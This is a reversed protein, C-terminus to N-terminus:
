EFLRYILNRLKPSNAAQHLMRIDDRGYSNGYQHMQQYHKLNDQFYSAFGQYARASFDQFTEQSRENGFQDHHGKMFKRKKFTLHGHHIISVYDCVGISWNNEQCVDHCVLEQGWGYILKEDFQGISEILKRHFLPAQNDIWRVLRIGKTGWNMMQRWPNAKGAMCPTVIALNNQFLANRLVEVFNEGNLEIDNNLFLLSDYAPNELVIEFAKNLAGGWYINELLEITTHRSKHLIDSANDMVMLDYFHGKFPELSAYLLDTEEALNHNLIIALTKTM